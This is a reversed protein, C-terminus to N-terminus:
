DHGASEPIFNAVADAFAGPVYDLVKAIDRVSQEVVNAGVARCYRIYEEEQEVPRLEFSRCIPGYSGAPDPISRGGVVVYIHPLPQLQVLLKDMLWDQVTEDAQEVADFILLVPREGAAHLDTVFRETFHPIMRAADDEEPSRSRMSIMSFFAQFGKIEIQPRNIWEQYADDFHQFRDRGLKSRMNLLHEVVIMQPNRLDDVVWAMGQAEAIRPLVRTLLHTKGMKPDGLLRLFREPTDPDLLARFLEIADIRDIIPNNM